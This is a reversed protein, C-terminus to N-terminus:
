VWTKKAVLKSHHFQEPLLHAQCSTCHFELPLRNRPIPAVETICNSLVCLAELLSRNPTLSTEPTLVARGANETDLMNLLCCYNM